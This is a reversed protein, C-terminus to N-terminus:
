KMCPAYEIFKVYRDTSAALMINDVGEGEWGIKWGVFNEEDYFIKPIIFTYVWYLDFISQLNRRIPQIAMRFLASSAAICTNYIPLM